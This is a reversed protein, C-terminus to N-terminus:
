LNYQLKFQADNQVETLKITFLYCYHINSWVHTAWSRFIVWIWKQTSLDIDFESNENADNMYLLGVVKQCLFLSISCMNSMVRPLGRENQCWFDFKLYLKFSFNQM